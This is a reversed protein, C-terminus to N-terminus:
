QLGARSEELCRARTKDLVESIDNGLARPLSCDPSASRESYVQDCTSKATGQALCDKYDKATKESIRRCAQTWNASYNAEANSVCTRYRRQVAERAAALREDAEQKEAAARAESEQRAATLRAQEAQRAYEARAAELKRDRDLQADRAPLYASYYYGM